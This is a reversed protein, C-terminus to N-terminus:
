NCVIQNDFNLNIVKYKDWGISPLAKQYFVKLRAFKNMTNTTDGFEVIHNGVKTVLSIHNNKDLVVQEILSKLVEDKSVFDAISYCSIIGSVSKDVEKDLECVSFINENDLLVDNIDGSVVFSSFPKQAKLPIVKGSRTVIKWNNTQTVYQFLPEEQRIFVEVNGEVTVKIDSYKVYPNSDVLKKINDIKVSDVNQKDIKGFKKEILSIVEQQSIFEPSNDYEIKVSLNKCNRTSHENKALIFLVVCGGVVAIWLITLLIKILIKM